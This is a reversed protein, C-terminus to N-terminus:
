VELKTPLTLHTYSVAACLILAFDRVITELYQGTDGSGFCGCSIGLGRVWASAILVIFVAMMAASAALGADLGRRTLLFAGVVIEFPPMFYAAACATWVPFIRYNSIDTFFVDPRAIKACGAYILVGALIIRLTWSIVTKLTEM